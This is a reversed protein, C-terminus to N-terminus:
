ANDGEQINRTLNTFFEFTKRAGVNNKRGLGLEFMEEETLCYLTDGIKSILEMRKFDDTINKMSNAIAIYGNFINVDALKSNEIMDNIDNNFYKELMYDFLDDITKAFNKVMNVRVSLSNVQIKTKKISETLISMYTLMGQLMTYEKYTNAVKGKLTKCNNVLDNVFKNYDDNKLSELWEKGTDTRKFSLRVIEKADEQNRIVLKFPLGFRKDMNINDRKCSEYALVFAKLRHYGDLISCVTYSPSNIDYNPTIEVDYIDEIRQEESIQLINNDKLLLNLIIMDEEYKGKKILDAIERVAKDNVTITRIVHNKTGLKKYTGERQTDKNYYILVNNYYDYIQEWDIYGLYNFDDIKKMTKFKMTTVIKEVNEYMDFAVLQENKFWQEPNLYEWELGEYCGQIFGVQCLENLDFFSQDESFISQIINTSLGKKTFIEQLKNILKRNSFEENILKELVSTKTDDDLFKKITKTNEM